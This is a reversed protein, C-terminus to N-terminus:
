LGAIKGGHGNLPAVQKVHAIQRQRPVYESLFENLERLREAESRKRLLVHLFDLDHIPQALQFSLQPDNLDPESVLDVEGTELLRRFQVLVQEQVELPAPDPEDDDFFQVEGQLYDKEENLLVIEFRRRGCTLIDMRGDPYSKVVKEVVVTCGANVIGDEKSLVVGFESKNQIAQGVMERYRDEFIHLPLHTRPFVVVRLPFLPLLTSAM